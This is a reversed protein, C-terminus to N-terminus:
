KSRSSRSEVRKKVEELVGEREGQKDVIEERVVDRADDFMEGTKEDLEMLKVVREDKNEAVRRFNGEIKEWADASMDGAAFKAYLKGYLSFVMEQQRVVNEIAIDLGRVKEFDDGEKLGKGIEEMEVIREEMHKIEILIRQEDKNSLSLVAQEATIDLPYLMDGPVSSDSAYVVGAGIIFLALIAGIVVLTRRGIGKLM